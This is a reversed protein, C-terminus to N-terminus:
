VMDKCDTPVACFLKIARWYEVPVEPKILHKSEVKQKQLKLSDPDDLAIAENTFLQVRANRISGLQCFKSCIYQTWANSSEMMITMINPSHTIWRMATASTSNEVQTPTFYAEGTGFSLVSYYHAKRAKESTRHTKQYLVGIVRPDNAWIGGDLCSLLRTGDHNFFCSPCYKQNEKLHMGNKCVFCAGSESLMERQMSFNHIPFYSPAASTALMADILKLRPHDHSNFFCIQKGVLDYSTVACTRKLDAFTLEDYVLTPDHREIICKLMYRRGADTYKHDAMFGAKSFIDHALTEFATMMQSFKVGLCFGIALIGGISTGCILDYRSLVREVFDDLKGTDHCFKKLELCFGKFLLLTTYGRVGGGDLSLINTQFKTHLEPDFEGTEWVYKTMPHLHNVNKEHKIAHCSACEDYDACMDCRFWTRDHTTRQGADTPLPQFCADCRGWEGYGGFDKVQDSFDICYDINNQLDTIFKVHFPHQTNNLQEFYLNNEMFNLYVRLVFEKKHEPVGDPFRFEKRIMAESDKCSDVRCMNTQRKLIDFIKPWDFKEAEARNVTGTGNLDMAKLLARANDSVLTSADVPNDDKWRPWDKLLVRELMVKQAENLAFSVMSENPFRDAFNQFLDEVLIKMEPLNLVADGNTDYNRFLESIHKLHDPQQLKELVSKSGGFGM